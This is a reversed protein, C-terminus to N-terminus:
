APMWGRGTHRPPAESLRAEPNSSTVGARARYFATSGPGGRGVWQWAPAWMSARRPSPTSIISEGVPYQQDRPKEPVVAPPPPPLNCNNAIAARNLAEMEGKLKAIEAAMNSGSLTSVPLGILVV